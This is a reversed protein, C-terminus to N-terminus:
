KIAVRRRHKIDEALYVTAMGGAGLEREVRYRDALATTLRAAVDSLTGGGAAQERGVGKEGPGARIGPDDAGPREDPGERVVAHWPYAERRGARDARVDRPDRRERSPPGPDRREERRQPRALP